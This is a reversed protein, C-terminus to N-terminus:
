PGPIKRNTEFPVKEVSYAPLVRDLHHWFGAATHPHPRWSSSMVLGSHVGGPRLMKPITVFLHIILIPLVRMDARWRRKTSNCSQLFGEHRLRKQSYEGCLFTGCRAAHM